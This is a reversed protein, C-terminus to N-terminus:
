CFIHHHISCINSNPNYILLFWSRIQLPLSFSATSCTRNYETMHEYEIRETTAFIRNVLKNMVVTINFIVLILQELGRFFMERQERNDVAVYIAACILKEFLVSPFLDM